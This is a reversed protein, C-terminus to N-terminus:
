FHSTVFNYHLIFVLSQEEFQYLCLQSHHGFLSTKPFTFKNKTDTWGRGLEWGQCLATCHIGSDTLFPRSTWKGIKVKVYFIVVLSENAFLLGSSNGLNQVKFHKERGAWKEWIEFISQGLSASHRAVHLYSVELWSAPKSSLVKLFRQNTIWCGWWKISGKKLSFTQPSLLNGPSFDCKKVSVM